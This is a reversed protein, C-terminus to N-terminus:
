FNVRLVVNIVVHNKSHLLVIKQQKYKLQTVGPRSSPPRPEALVGLILVRDAATPSVALKGCVSPWCLFPFASTTHDGSSAPSEGNSSSSGVTPETQPSTTVHAVGKREDLQFVLIDPRSSPKRNATQCKKKRNKAHVYTNARPKEIKDWM